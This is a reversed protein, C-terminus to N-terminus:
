TRANCLTASGGWGLGTARAKRGCALESDEDAGLKVKTPCVRWEASEKSFFLVSLLVVFM